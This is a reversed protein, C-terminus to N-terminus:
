TKMVKISQDVSIVSLLKLQTIKLIGFASNQKDSLYDPVGVLIAFIYSNRVKM